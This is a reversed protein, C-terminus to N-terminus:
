PFMVFIISKDVEKFGWGHISEEVPLEEAKKEEVPHISIIEVPINESPLTEAKELTDLSEMEQESQKSRMWDFAYNFSVAMFGFFSFVMLFGTGVIGLTKNLWLSTQYGFTGGLFFYDNHFIYGLGASGWVMIFFARKFFNRLPFLSTKFLIRFGALFSFAVFFYSAIGFGKHIFLHSVVAGLKGLWNDVGTQGSLQNVDENTFFLEWWSGMVKDQDTKWTFLFSTFAVLLYISSLILALGVVRHLRDDKFFNIIPLFLNVKEKPVKRKRKPALAEDEAEPKQNGAGSKKEEEIDEEMLNDDGESEEEKRSKRFKNRSAKFKNGSVIEIEEEAM